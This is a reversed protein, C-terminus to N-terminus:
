MQSRFHSEADSKDVCPKSVKELTQSIIRAFKQRKAIIKNYLERVVERLM